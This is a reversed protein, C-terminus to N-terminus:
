AWSVLATRPPPYCVKDILLFTVWYGPIAGGAALIINGVSLDRLAFFASHPQLVNSDLKDKTSQYILGLVITSNLALGYFAVDIAFWSWCTALLVKGNGWKGFYEIFDSWTAVPVEIRRVAADPDRYFSGDAM